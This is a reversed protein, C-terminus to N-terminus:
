PKRKEKGREWDYLYFDTGRYSIRRLRGAVVQAELWPAGEGRARLMALLTEERLPHVATIALIDDLPDGTLVFGSEPEAGLTRLVPVQAQARRAVTFLREDPLARVWPDVAPRIPTGLWAEDPQVEALFDALTDIEADSDNVGDVLMTETVLTGQFEAAFTRIGDMVQEFSLRGHPRNVARWVREHAADVKVSVWNAGLLAARVEANWMLSGNTIVALTIGLPKLIALMEGLNLDLTPEGDPVFTIADVNQGAHQARSLKGAVARAVEVAPFFTQRRLTLPHTPGVQCYVCAYTCYKAPIHNIGLSNGLRRSPVPGFALMEASM